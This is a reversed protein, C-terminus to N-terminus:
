PLGEKQSSKKKLAPTNWWWGHEYGRAHGKQVRCPVKQLITDSMEHNCHKHRVKKKEQSNQRSIDCGRGHSLAPFVFGLGVNWQGMSGSVM